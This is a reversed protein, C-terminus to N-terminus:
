LAYEQRPMLADFYDQLIYTAALMDVEEKAFTGGRSQLEEEAKVSTLAEDQYVVTFASLYQAAFARVFATQPTEDGQLNRPLGVVILTPQLDKCLQEFATKFQETYITTYPHAFGVVSNGEAVGVRVTGVDLAVVVGQTDLAM